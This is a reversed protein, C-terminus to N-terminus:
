EWTRPTVTPQIYLRNKYALTPYAIFIGLENIKVKRKLNKLIIGDVRDHFMEDFLDSIDAGGLSGLNSVIRRHEVPVL